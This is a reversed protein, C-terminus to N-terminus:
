SFLIPLQNERAEGIFDDAPKKILLRITKTDDRAAWETM